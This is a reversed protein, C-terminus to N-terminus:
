QIPNHCFLPSWLRTPIQTSHPKDLIVKELRMLRKHEDWEYLAKMAEATKLDDDRNVDLLPAGTVLAYLIVGFSWIEIAKMAKVLYYSLASRDVPDDDKICQKEVFKRGKRVEKSYELYQPRFTKVVFFETDGCEKPDIKKGSTMTSM